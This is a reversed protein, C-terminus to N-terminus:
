RPLPLIPDPLPYYRCRWNDGTGRKAEIFGIGVLEILVQSVRSQNITRTKRIEGIIDNVRRKGNCLDYIQKKLPNSLVEPEEPVTKLLKDLKKSVMDLKKSIVELIGVVNDTSHASM